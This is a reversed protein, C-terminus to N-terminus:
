DVLRRPGVGEHAGGGGCEGGAADQLARARPEDEAEGIPVIGCEHRRPRAPQACEAGRRDDQRREVRVRLADCPLHGLDATGHGKVGGRRRGGSGSLATPEGNVVPACARTQRLQLHRLQGLVGEDVQQQASAVRGDGEGLHVHEPKRRAWPLREGGGGGGRRGCRPQVPEVVVGGRSAHDVQAEQVRQGARRGEEAVGGLPPGGLQRRRGLRSSLHAGATCGRGSCTAGRSSRSQESRREELADWWGGVWAGVWM